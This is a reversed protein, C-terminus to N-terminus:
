EMMIMLILLQPLRLGLIVGSAGTVGTLSVAVSEASEPNLDDLVTIPITASLQNALITVTGTLATYDSGATATGTVSYNVVTNTNSVQSLSVTFLGNINPESARTTAAITVNIPNPLSAFKLYIPQTVPLRCIEM